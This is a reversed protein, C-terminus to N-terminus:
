KVEDVVEQILKKMQEEIKDSLAEEKEIEQALSKYSTDLKDYLISEFKLVDEVAVDDFYNNIGAYIFIVQKYFPIPSNVGQKLM